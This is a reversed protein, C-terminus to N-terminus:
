RRDRLAPVVAALPLFRPPPTVTAALQECLRRAGEEAQTTVAEVLRASWRPDDPHVEITTSVAIQEDATEDTMLDIKIVM